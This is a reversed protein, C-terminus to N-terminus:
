KKKKRKKKPPPTTAEREAQEADDRRNRRAIYGEDFSGGGYFGGRSVRNSPGRAEDYLADLSNPNYTEFPGKVPQQRHSTSGGIFSGKRNRAKKDLAQFYEEPSNYGRPAQTM